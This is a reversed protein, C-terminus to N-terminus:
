RTGTREGLREFRRLAAEFREGAEQHCQQFLYMAGLSHLMAAEGRLNGARRAADLAHEHTGRWDDFWSRAEFLTVSTMALDWALEDLELAAAQRVVAVIPLREAELWTLPEALHREAIEPPVPWRAATGHLVTHDGGYERRHAEEALALWAGFARALAATRV